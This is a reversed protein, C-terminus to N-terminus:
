KKSGAAKGAFYADPNKMLLRVNADHRATYEGVCRAYSDPNSDKFQECGMLMKKRITELQMREARIQAQQESSPVAAGAITFLSM